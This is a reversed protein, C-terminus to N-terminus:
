SGLCGDAAEAEGLFARDRAMYSGPRRWMVAGLITSTTLYDTSGPISCAPLRLRALQPGTPSASKMLARLRDSVIDQCWESRTALLWLEPRQDAETLLM